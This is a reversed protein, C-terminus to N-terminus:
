MLGAERMASLAKDEFFKDVDQVRWALRKSGLKFPPPVADWNKRYLLISLANRSIGLLSAMDQTSYILKECKEIKSM